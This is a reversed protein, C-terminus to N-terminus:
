DARRRMLRPRPWYRGVVTGRVETVAGFSRSDDSESNEGEVWYGSSDIRKLRKVLLLGARLPHEVVVVDGVIPAAPSVLLWDGASLTPEMSSGAVEATSWRM